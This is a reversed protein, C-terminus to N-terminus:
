GTFIELYTQMEFESIPYDTGGRANLMKTHHVRGIKMQLAMATRMTLGSKWALATIASGSQSKLIRRATDVRMGGLIALAAAVFPENVEHIATSVVEEDLRNMEHLQRVRMEAARQQDATWSKLRHSVAIHTDEKHLRKIKGESELRSVLNQSIFGAIRNVTSQTLEPRNILSEHWIEYRPAEDVIVALAQEGIQAGPNELLRHIAEPERRDVIADVVPGSIENRGAIAGTVGPINSSGIIDLLDHDSLLPSFELIPCSVKLSPDWALQQVVDYPADPMDCLEQAVMMRVRETQDQAVIMLVRVAHDLALTQKSHSLHPLLRAIKRAMQIRVEEQLANYDDLSDDLRVIELAPQDDRQIEIHDSYFEIDTIHQAETTALETTKDMARTMDDLDRRMHDLHEQPPLLEGSPASSGGFLRQIAQVVSM